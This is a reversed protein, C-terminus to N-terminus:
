RRGPRRHCAAGARSSRSASSAAPTTGSLSSRTGTSRATLSLPGCIVEFAVATNMAPGPDRLVEPAGCRGIILGPDLREEPVELALMRVQVLDDIGAFELGFEAM